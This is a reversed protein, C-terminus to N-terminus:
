KWIIDNKHKEVYDSIENEDGVLWGFSLALWKKQTETNTFCIGHSCSSIESYLNNPKKETWATWNCLNWCEDASFEEMNIYGAYIPMTDGFTYNHINVRM